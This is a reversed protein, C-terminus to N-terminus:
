PRPDNPYGLLIAGSKDIFLYDLKEARFAKALQQAQLPSFNGRRPM